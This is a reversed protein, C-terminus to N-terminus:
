KPTAPSSASAAAPTAPALTLPGKQGCAALLSLMATFSGAATMVVIRAALSHRRKLM